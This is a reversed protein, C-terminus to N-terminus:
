LGEGRGPNTSEGRRSKDATDREGICADSRTRFDLWLVLCHIM